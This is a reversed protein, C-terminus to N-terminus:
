GASKGCALLLFSGLYAAVVLLMLSSTGIIMGLYEAFGGITAGILNAGLLMSPSSGARFTTSFILGAFFIPLPMVLLAWLMRQAFTLCLIADRPVFYLLLLSGFLPLYYALSPRHLRMAVVNAALVMILIGAVVITM